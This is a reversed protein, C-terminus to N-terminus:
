PEGMEARAFAEAFLHKRIAGRGSCVESAAALPAVRALAIFAARKTPSLERAHRLSYRVALVAGECTERNWLPELALVVDAVWPAVWWHFGCGYVRVPLNKTPRRATLLAAELLEGAVAVRGVSYRTRCEWCFVTVETHHQERVADRGGVLM